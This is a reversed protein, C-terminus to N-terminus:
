KSNMDVLEQLFETFREPALGKGGQPCRGSSVYKLMKGTMEADAKFVKGGDSLTVSKGKTQSVVKDHCAACENAIVSKKNPVEPAATNPLVNPPMGGAKAELAALRATLEAVKSDCSTPATSAQPATAPPAYVPAYQSATGIPYTPIFAYELVVVKKVDAYDHHVKQQQVYSSFGYGQQPFYVTGCPSATAIVAAALWAPFVWLFKTM